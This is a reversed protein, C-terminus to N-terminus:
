FIKIHIYEGQYLLLYILKISLTRMRIYLIFSVKSYQADETKYLDPCVERLKNSISDVSANDGLYSNVLTTILISCIDARYMFLDRFLTNQLVQQQNDPLTGILNHFQHECLIRWLGMIQRSHDVLVKLADLSTREELQVDSETFNTRTVNMSINPNRVSLNASQPTSQQISVSLFKHLDNLSMVVLM